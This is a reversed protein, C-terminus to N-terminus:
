LFFENAPEFGLFRTYASSSYSGAYGLVVLDGIQASPLMTDKLLFDRSYTSCGYITTRHFESENYHGNENIFCVPHYSKEGYFLPRPFQVSSATVGIYQHERRTKIDVVQCIFYGADGGIIRGPELILKIERELGSSLKNMLESVRIGYLGTDFDNDNEESLGFGGGFDIFSLNPFLGALDAIQKYCHMFYEIDTINTGVYIHLGEINENGKISEVEEILLGLRSDRGIFYGALTEKPVVKEGINCRLGVKKGPFLNNWRKLQGLSDLIVIAESEKVTRMLSDDMASAAFIIDRGDFGNELAKKLHVSSNVFVKLGNDKILNLFVPNENAMMAFHISKNEYPINCFARCNQNIKDTDYLYFGKYGLQSLRRIENEIRGDLSLVSYKNDNNTTTM